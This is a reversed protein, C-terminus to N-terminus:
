LEKLLDAQKAEYVEKSILGKQYLNELDKLREELTKEPVDPAPAQHRGAPQAEGAPPLAAALAQGEAPLEEALDAELIRASEQARRCDAMAETFVSEPHLRIAADFSDLAADYNGLLFDTMGLNYRARAALKPKSGEFSRCAEANAASQKRAAQIDGGRVLDYALRLDCRSDKFFKLTKVETWPFFLQHVQETAFRLAQDLIDYRSPFEPRVTSSRNERQVRQEITRSSHIKATTLDVVQISGHFYATTRSIYEYTVTGNISNRRHNTLPQQETTCRRVAVFVLATPGLIEGLELADERAVMGSLSFEHEAVLAEIQRRNVVEV